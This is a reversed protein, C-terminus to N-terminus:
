DVPIKLSRPTGQAAKPMEVRLVGDRYRARAEDPRVAVALPVVRRFSGYACQMVRWRGETSEREFRKEGSVVLADDLVEVQLDQKDMGPLELRVVLRSDDEFVDGGLVAWGRSPLYFGDDVESAAPVGSDQEPRFRTLAGAASQILHNWGESVSEWLAGVRDKIEDLKM